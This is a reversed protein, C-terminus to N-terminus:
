MGVTGCSDLSAGRGDDLLRLAMAHLAFRDLHYPM